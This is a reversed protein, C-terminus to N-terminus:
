KNIKINYYTTYIKANKFAFIYYTLYSYASAFQESNIVHRLYESKQSLFVSICVDIYKVIQDRFKIRTNEIMSSFQSARARALLMPTYYPGVSLKFDSLRHRRDSVQVCPIASVDVGLFYKYPLSRWTSPARTIIADSIANEDQRMTSTRPNLRNRSWWGILKSGRRGIRLRSSACGWWGKAYPIKNNVRWRCWSRFHLKTTCRVQGFQRVRLRKYRSTSRM